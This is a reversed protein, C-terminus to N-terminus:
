LNIPEDGGMSQEQIGKLLEERCPTPFHTVALHVSGVHIVAFTKRLSGPGACLFISFGALPFALLAKNHESYTDIISVTPYRHMHTHKSCTPCFKIAFRFRVRCVPFAVVVVAKM